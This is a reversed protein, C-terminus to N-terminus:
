AAVGSPPESGFGVRARPFLNCSAADAAAAATTPAATVLWSILSLFGCRGDFFEIRGM